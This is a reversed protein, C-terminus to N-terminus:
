SASDPDNIRAAVAKLKGLLGRVKSRSSKTREAIERQSLHQVRLRLVEEMEPTCEKVVRGWLASGDLIQDASPSEDRKELRGDPGPKASLSRDRRDYTDTRQGGDTRPWEEERLWAEAASFTHKKFWKM